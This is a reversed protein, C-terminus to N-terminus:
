EGEGFEARLAALADIAEGFGFRLDGYASDKLVISTTKELAEVAALLKEHLPALRNLYDEIPTAEFAGVRRAIPREDGPEIMEGDLDDIPVNWFGCENNLDFALKERLLDTLNSM